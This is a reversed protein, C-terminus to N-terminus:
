LVLNIVKKKFKKKSFFIRSVDHKDINNTAEKKDVKTEVKRTNTTKVVTTVTTSEIEAKRIVPDTLLPLKVPEIKDVKKTIEIATTSITPNTSTTSPTAGTVM